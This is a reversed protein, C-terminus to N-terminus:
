PNGTKHLKIGFVIALVGYILTILGIIIYMTMADTRKPYAFISLSFLALFFGMFLSLWANTFVDRRKFANILHIFGICLAWIAILYCLILSTIGPWFLLVVGIAINFVSDILYIKWLPDYSRRTLAIILTFFGSLLVFSAFFILLSFLSLEPNIFLLVGFLIALVGRCIPLFWLEKIKDPM